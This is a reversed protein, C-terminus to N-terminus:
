LADIAGKLAAPEITFDSRHPPALRDTVDGFLVRYYHGRVVSLDWYFPEIWGAPALYILTTAPRCFLTNTM